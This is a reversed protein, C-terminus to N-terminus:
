AHARDLSVIASWPPLDGGATDANLAFVVEGVARPLALPAASFNAALHLASGDGLTWDVTVGSEDIVAYAGSPSIGDLRPVIFRTRAALLSRYLSLWGAHGPADIETWDLQSRRFTEIDTPDPIAAQAAPDSFRAFRGFEGRRGDRGAAALEPGFDCFFQFPASANFEEGMFLMPISPALLVCVLAVRLAEPQAIAGIREGFARNGVQDHTQV